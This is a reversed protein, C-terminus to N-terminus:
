RKARRSSISLEGKREKLEPEGGRRMHCLIMDMRSERFNEQRQECKAMYSCYAEEEVIM